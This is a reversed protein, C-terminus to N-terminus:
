KLVIRQLIIGEKTVRAEGTTTDVMDAFEVEGQYPLSTGVIPLTEGEAIYMYGVGVESVFPGVRKTVKCFASKGSGSHSMVKITVM